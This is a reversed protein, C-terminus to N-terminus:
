MKVTYSYIIDAKSNLINMIQYVYQLKSSIDM